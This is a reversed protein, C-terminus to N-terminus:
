RVLRARAIVLLLSMTGVVSLCMTHAPRSSRRSRGHAVAQYEVTSQVALRISSQAGDTKLVVEPRRVGREDVPRSVTGTDGHQVIVCATGDEPRFPGPGTAVGAALRLGFRDNRVTGAQASTAGEM